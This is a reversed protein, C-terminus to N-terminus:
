LDYAPEIRAPEQVKPLVASLEAQFSRRFRSGGTFYHENRRGLAKSEQYVWFSSLDKAKEKVVYHKSQIVLSKYYSIAKFLYHEFTEWTEFTVTSCDPM